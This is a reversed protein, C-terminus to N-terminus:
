ISRLKKMENQKFEDNLHAYVQELLLTTSHGVIEKLTNLAMGSQAAWSCFTHRCSHFVLEKNLGAKKVAIKFKNSVNWELLKFGNKNTFVFDSIKSHPQRQLLEKVNDLIPVYRIKNSKTASEETGGVRIRNNEYDIDAWKLNLVEGIRCGTYCAFQFMDSFPQEANDFLKQAEEKTLYPRSVAKIKFLAVGIFPNSQIYNWKKCRNFIAKLNRLETNISSLHVGAKERLIKYAEVDNLTIDTVRSNEKRIEISHQKMLNIFLNLSSLYLTLTGDAITGKLHTKVIEPLETLLPAKGENEKVHEDAIDLIYNGNKYIQLAENKVKTGTSQWNVKGNRRTGIYYYGNERRRLYTTVKDTM